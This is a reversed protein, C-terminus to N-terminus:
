VQSERYNWPLDTNTRITKQKLKRKKILIKLDIYTVATIAFLLATLGIFILNSNSKITEEINFILEENIINQSEFIKYQPLDNPTIRFYPTKIIYDIEEIIKASSKLTIVYDIKNNTIYIQMPELVSFYLNKNVQTIKNQRKLKTFCNTDFHKKNFHNKDTSIYNNECESVELPSNDVCFNYDTTNFCNIQFLKETYLYKANKEIIAYKLNTNIIYFEGKHIIPKPHITYLTIYKNNQFYPIEFTIYITNEHFEYTAKTSSIFDSIFTNTYQIPTSYNSFLLNAEYEVHTKLKDIGILEFLYDFSLNKIKNLKEEIEFFLTEIKYLNNCDNASFNRVENTIQSIDDSVIKHIISTKETRNTEPWSINWIEKMKEFQINHNACSKKYNNENEQILKFISLDLSYTIYISNEKLRINKLPTFIVGNMVDDPLINTGHTSHTIILAIVLIKIM